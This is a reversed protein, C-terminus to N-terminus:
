PNGYMPEIGALARERRTRLFDQVACALLYFKTQYQPEELAIKFRQARVRRLVGDAAVLFSRAGALDRRICAHAAEATPCLILNEAFGLAVEASPTKGPTGELHLIEQQFMLCFENLQICFRDLSSLFKM